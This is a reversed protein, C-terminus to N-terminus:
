RVEGPMARGLKALRKKDISGRASSPASASIQAASSRHNCNTQVSLCAQKTAGLFWGEWLGESLPLRIAPLGETGGLHEWWCGGMSACSANRRMHQALILHHSCTESETAGDRTRITPSVRLPPRSVRGETNKREGAVEARLIERPNNHTEKHTARPRLLMRAKNPPSIYALTNCRQLRM